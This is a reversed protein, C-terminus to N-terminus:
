KGKATIIWYLIYVGLGIASLAAGTVAIGISWEKILKQRRAKKAEERKRANEKLKKRNKIFNQYDQWLGPRGAYIFMQKIEYNRQKIDELAWFHDMCGADAKRQIEEEADALKTLHKGMQGVSTVHGALEKIGNIAENALQIAAITEIFMLPKGIRSKVALQSDTALTSDRYDHSGYAVYTQRPNKLSDQVNSTVSLM